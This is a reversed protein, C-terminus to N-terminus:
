PKVAEFRSTLRGVRVKLRAARAKLIRVRPNSSVVRLNSSTVQPNSSRVRLNSSMAQLNSSTVPIDESAVRTKSKWQQDQFLNGRPTTTIVVACSKEDFGSSLSQEIEHHPGRVLTGAPFLALCREPDVIGCFCNLQDLKYSLAKQM